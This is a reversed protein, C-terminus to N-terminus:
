SNSRGAVSSLGRGAATRCNGVRQRKVKEVMGETMGNTMRGSTWCRRGARRSPSVAASPPHPRLSPRGLWGSLPQGWSSACCLWASSSPRSLPPPPPSRVAPLAPLSHSLRQQPLPPLPFVPFAYRYPPPSTSLLQLRKPHPPSPSSSTHMHPLRWCNGSGLLAYLRWWMQLAIALLM